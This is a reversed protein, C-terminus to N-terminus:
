QVDELTFDGHNFRVVKGVVKKVVKQKTLYREIDKKVTKITCGHCCLM